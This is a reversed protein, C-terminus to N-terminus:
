SFPLMSISYSKSTVRILMDYIDIRFIVQFILINVLYKNKVLVEHKLSSAVRLKGICESGFAYLKM